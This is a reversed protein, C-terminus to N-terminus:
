SEVIQLLSMKVIWHAFRAHDGKRRRLQTTMLRISVAESGGQQQQQKQLTQHEVRNKRKAERKKASKTKKPATKAEQDSAVTSESGSKIQPPDGVTENSTPEERGHTQAHSELSASLTSQTSKNTLAAGSLASNMGPVSTAAAAERDVDVADVNIM